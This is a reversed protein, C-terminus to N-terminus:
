GAVGKEVGNGLFYRGDPLPILQGMSRAEPM